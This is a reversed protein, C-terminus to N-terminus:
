RGPQAMEQATAYALVQRVHEIPLDFNDAIDEASEGSEFNELVSDAQVRSGRLIPVGSVKGPVQEVLSCGSWDM